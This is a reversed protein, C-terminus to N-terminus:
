SKMKEDSLKRAYEREIWPNFEAKKAAVGTSARSVHEVVVDPQLYAAYSSRILRHAWEIDSGFILYEEDFYGVKDFVDKRYLTCMGSFPTTFRRPPGAQPVTGQQEECSTKTVLPSVAFCDPASEITQMLRTLWCPQLNPVFVDSDMIVVYDCTSERVLKNWIKSMNKTGGRNDYYTLKYPWQTNEILHQACKVEVEPSKYKLIIIEVRKMEQESPIPWQVLQLIEQTLTHQEEPSYHPKEEEVAQLLGRRLKGSTDFKELVYKIPKKFRLGLTRLSKRM